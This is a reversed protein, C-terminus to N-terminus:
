ENLMTFESCDWLRYYMLQVVQLNRPHVRKKTYFNLGTLIKRYTVSELHM